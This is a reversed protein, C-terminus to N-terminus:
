AVAHRQNKIRVWPFQRGTNFLRHWALSAKNLIDYSYPALSEWAHHHYSASLSAFGQSNFYRASRAKARATEENRYFHTDIIHIEGGHELHQCATALLSAPQSFYQFAAAFVIIDFTESSTLTSIGGAKFRLNPGTFVRVAQALEVENIDIGTVTTAHIHSLRNSLWGNGCGVELLALPRGIRALYRCLQNASAKRIAWETALPHGSAIDPLVAVVDDPYLRGESTRLAIYQTTFSDSRADNM